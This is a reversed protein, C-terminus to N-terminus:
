TNSKSNNIAKQQKAYASPTMGEMKKFIHNFSSKSGFGCDYAIALLTLNKQQAHAIKAKFAQIRHSNVFEYFNQEIHENIIQSLYNPPINLKQALQQLSLKSDLYPKEEEMLQLLQKKLELAEKPKLGSKQYRKTPSPNTPSPNIPSPNTPSPNTPSPNTPSPNISSPNIPSPHIPSPNTFINNQQIGFYSILFVFISLASFIYYGSQLPIDIKLFVELPITIIVFTWVISISVLLYWMWNLNIKDTYSFNDQINKQHQQLRKFTWSVYCIGSLIYLAQTLYVLPPPNFPLVEQVFHLKHEASHLFFPFLLYAYVVFMPLIHWWDSQKWQTKKQTLADVYLYLFPGHLMPFPIAIGLLHPYNFLVGTYHAYVFFLHIAIFFIWTALIKDALSKDKKQIIILDLFFAQVIGLLFIISM